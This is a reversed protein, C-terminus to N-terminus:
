VELPSPASRPRHAQHPVGAVPRPIISCASYKRKRLHIPVVVAQVVAQGYRKVVGLHKRLGRKVPDLLAWAGQVFDLDRGMVALRGQGDVSDFGRFKASLRRFLICGEADVAFGVVALSILPPYDVEGDAVLAQRFLRLRHFQGWGGPVKDTDGM